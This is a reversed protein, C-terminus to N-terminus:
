NKKKKGKKKKKKKGRSIKLTRVEQMVSRLTAEMVTIMIAQSNLPTEANGPQPTGQQETFRRLTRM